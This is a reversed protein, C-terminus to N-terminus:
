KLGSFLLAAGTCQPELFDFYARQQWVFNGQGRQEEPFNRNSNVFPVCLCVAKGSVFV